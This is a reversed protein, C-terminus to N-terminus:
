ASKRRRAVRCAPCMGGFTVEVREVIFGLTNAPHACPPSGRLGVASVRGGCERCMLEAVLEGMEARDDGARHTDIESAM